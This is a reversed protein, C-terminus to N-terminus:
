LLTSQKHILNEHKLDKLTEMVDRNAPARHIHLAVHLLQKFAQVVAMYIINKVTVNFTFKKARM